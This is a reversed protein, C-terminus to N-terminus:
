RRGEGAEEISVVGFDIAESVSAQNPLSVPEWEMSLYTEIGGLLVADVM